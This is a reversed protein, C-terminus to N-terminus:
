SVFRDFVLLAILAICAIYLVFWRIKLCYPCPKKKMTPSARYLPIVVFFSATAEKIM